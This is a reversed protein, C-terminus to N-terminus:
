QVMGLWQECASPPVIDLPSNDVRMVLMHNLTVGGNLALPKLNILANAVDTGSTPLCSADDSRNYGSSTLGGGACSVGGQPQALITAALTIGGSNAINAGQNTKTTNWAITTFRLDLRGGANRVGGGQQNATNDSLTSNSVNAAGRSYIGGGHTATNSNL